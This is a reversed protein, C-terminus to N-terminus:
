FLAAFRTYVDETKCNPFTKCTYVDVSAFHNFKYACKLQAVHAHVYVLSTLDLNFLIISFHAPFIELIDCFTCHLMVTLIFILLVPQYVHM